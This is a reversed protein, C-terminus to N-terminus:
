PNDSSIAKYIKEGINGQEKKQENEKKDVLDMLQKVLLDEPCELLVTKFVHDHYELVPVSKDNATVFFTDNSIFTIDRWFAWESFNLSNDVNMEIESVQFDDMNITYIRKERLRPFLFMRNEHRAYYTAVILTNVDKINLSCKERKKNKLDIKLIDNPIMRPFLYICNDIIYLNRYIKEEVEIDITSVEESELDLCLVRNYEWPCIYIRDAWEYGQIVPLTMEECGDIPLTIEKMERSKADIRLIKGYEGPVLWVVDEKRVYNMFLFGPCKKNPDPIDVYEIKCSDINFIAIKDGQFSPIFWIEHNVSFAFRHIEEKREADFMTIFESKGTELDARFLGNTYKASYYIYEGIQVVANFYGIGKKLEIKNGQENM